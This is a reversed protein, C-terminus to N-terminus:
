SKLKSSPSQIALCRHRSRATPSGSFNAQQRTM